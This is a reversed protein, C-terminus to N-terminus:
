HKEGAVSLAELRFVRYIELPNRRETPRHEFSRELAYERVPFSIVEVAKVGQPLFLREGSISPRWLLYVEREPFGLDSLLLRMKEPDFMTGEKLWVNEVGYFNRLPPGFHDGSHYDMLLVGGAPMEGAVARVAEWQNGGEDIGWLPMSAHAMFAVLYLFLGAAAAGLFWAGAAGVRLLRGPRKRIKSGRSDKKRLVRGGEESVGGDEKGNRVKGTDTGALLAHRGYAASVPAIGMGAAGGVSVEEKDLRVASRRVRLRDATGAMEKLTLAIMLLGAPLIVPVLRRMMLIHLPLAHMNVAYLATFFFGCLALFVDGVERRRSLCLTFGAFVAALGIPSLYWAWRLFDQSRYSPGEIAKIFGYSVMNDPQLPRLFYLWVFLVALSAWLLTAWVGRLRLLKEASLRIRSPSFAMGLVVLLLAVGCIVPPWISGGFFSRWTKDFYVRAYLRGMAIAFVAGLSVAGLFVWDPGRLGKLVGRLAMFLLLPVLVFLFDIRCLFGLVFLFASLASMGYAGSGKGRSTDPPRDEGMSGDGLYIRACLVGGLFLLANMMESGTYRGFYLTIPCVAALVVAAWAWRGGLFRRALLFLGWLSLVAVWTLAWFMNELGLFVAFAALLSPWLHFFLPWEKGTALDEFAYFQNEHYVIEGPSVEVPHYVLDAHEPAIEAASRNEVWLGGERVLNAALRPYIGVDSFGSVIRWPPAFIALGLVVLLAATAVEEWRRSAQVGKRARVGKVEEEAGAGRRRAVALAALFGGVLCLSLLFSINGFASLYGLVLATLSAIGTGAVLSLWVREGGRTRAGGDALCLLGWGPIGLALFLATIRLFFM